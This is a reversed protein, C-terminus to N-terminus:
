KVKTSQRKVLREMMRLDKERLRLAADVWIDGAALLEERTIPNCYQKTKRFACIGNRMRDEKKIYDYVAMEGQGEEALMDVVGLEYMEEATYLRGSLIMREAQTAGIKRSLMSYAGAGPFLNFLIDPLGMKANREAIIVQSSIASEMGGGLADGQILSITTINRGLGIHNQYMTNICARIYNTLGMRDKDRIYQIFLDLDGGLCFVGPVSSAFVAYRIDRDSQDILYDQWNKIEDLLTPTFCPRPQAHMYYWALGYEEEHQVTLQTYANQKQTSPSKLTAVNM